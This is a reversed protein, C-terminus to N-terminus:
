SRFVWFRSALFNVVLTIGTAGLKAWMDGLGFGTLLRILLTSLALASLNVLLFRVLQMSLLRDRSAFTWSRNVLYSNLMGAGYGIVNALYINMGLLQNLIWCVGVDVLTNAVGTLGFKLIRKLEERDLM